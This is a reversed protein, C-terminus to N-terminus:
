KKGTSGFGGEGRQTAGLEETLMLEPFSVPMVVLQAIRDGHSITYSHAGQNILGVKVEGRYDSDIVGVGNALAVGHKIGLGSRAFVLGAQGHPIEMAIGTPILAIEGSALTHPEELCACLDLGASYPTGRQPAIAKPHTLKIKLLM